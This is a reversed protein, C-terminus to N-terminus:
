LLGARLSLLHPLRRSRGAAHEATSSFSPAGLLQVGAGLLFLAPSAGAGQPAGESSSGVVAWFRRTGRGEQTGMGPRGRKVKGLGGMGGDRALDIREFFHGDTKGAGM